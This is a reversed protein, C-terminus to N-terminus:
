HRPASEGVQGIIRKATMSKQQTNLLLIDSNSFELKSDVSQHKKGVERAKASISNMELSVM